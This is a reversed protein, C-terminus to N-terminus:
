KERYRNSKNELKNGHMLFGLTCVHTLHLCVHKHFSPNKKTKDALLIHIIKALVFVWQIVCFSSFLFKICLLWWGLLRCCQNFLGKCYCISPPPSVVVNVNTSSHKFSKIKKEKRAEDGWVRYFTNYPRLKLVRFWLFIPIHKWFQIGDTIKLPQINFHM